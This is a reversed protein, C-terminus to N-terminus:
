SGSNTNIKQKILLTTTTNNNNNKKINNEKPRIILKDLEKLLKDNYFEEKENENMLNSNHKKNDIDINHNNNRNINNDINNNNKKHFATVFCNEIQSINFNDNICVLCNNNLWKKTNEFFAFEKKIISINDNYYIMCDLIKKSDFNKTTDDEIFANLYKYNQRLKIIMNKFENLRKQLDSIKNFDNIIKNTMTDILHQLINDFYETIEQKIKNKIIGLIDSKIENEYEKLNNNLESVFDPLIDDLKMDGNECKQCKIQVENNNKCLYLQNQPVKEHCNCCILFRSSILTNTMLFKPPMSIMKRCNPCKIQQNNRKYIDNLCSLCFTKNCCPIKKPLKDENKLDYNEYCIECTYNEEDM